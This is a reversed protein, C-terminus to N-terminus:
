MGANEVHNFELIMFNFLEILAINVKNNPIGMQPKLYLPPSTLQVREANGM